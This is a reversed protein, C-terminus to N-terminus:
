HERQQGGRVCRGVANGFQADGSVIQTEGAGGAVMGPRFATRQHLFHNVAHVGVDEACLFTQVILKRVDGFIRRIVLPDSAATVGVAATFVHRDKIAGRSQLGQACIM